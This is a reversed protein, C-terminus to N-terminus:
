LVCGWNKLGVVTCKVLKGLVAVNDSNHVEIYEYRKISIIKKGRYSYTKCCRGKVTDDLLVVKAVGLCFYGEEEYKYTSITAESKYNCANISFNGNENHPFWIQYKKQAGTPGSDQKVHIEDFWIMQERRITSIQDPDYWSLLLNVEPLDLKDTIEKRTLKGM